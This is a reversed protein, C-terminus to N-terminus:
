QPPPSTPEAPQPSAPAGDMATITERVFVAQTVIGLGLARGESEVQQTVIGAIFQAGAKAVFVPGGSNGSFIPADMLFTPYAALPSVPYSALVGTRLIPFGEPTSSLGLPFGITMLADGARMGYRDLTDADAVWALPIAASAVEPPVQVAIAAVDRAPHKTWLAANGNRIRVSQPAYRWRGAADQIRLGIKVEDGTMKSTFVHDATVMVIRPAGDPSPANILFGTGQGFKGDPLQQSIRVTAYFLDVPLDIAM